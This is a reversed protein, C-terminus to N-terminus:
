GATSSPATFSGYTIPPSTRGAPLDFDVTPLLHHSGPFRSDTGNIIALQTTLDVAGGEVDSYWPHSGGPCTVTKQQQYVINRAVSSPGGCWVAALPLPRNTTSVPKLVEARIEEYITLESSVRVEDFSEPEKKNCGAVVLVLPISLRYVSRMSRM